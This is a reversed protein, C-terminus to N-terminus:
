KKKDENSKFDFNKLADFANTNLNSNNPSKSSKDRFSKSDKNNPKNYDRRDKSNRQEKNYESRSTIGKEGGMKKSVINGSERIVEDLTSLEARGAFENVGNLGMYRTEINKLVSKSLEFERYSRIDKVDKVKTKYNDIIYKKFVDVYKGIDEITESNNHFFAYKTKIDETLLKVVRIKCKGLGYPKGKGINFCGETDGQKLSYILLGIEEDSLNEFRIKGAFITKENHCTIRSSIKDQKDETPLSLHMAETDISEKMWYFKRGRIEYNSTNYSELSNDKRQKLYGKYWSPKPEGLVMKYEQTKETNSNKCVADMFSLKTRFDKWGFINDVFDIGSYNKHSVPIGDHVSGNAPLRLYPTFGFILRDNDKIYFMPKVQGDKPLAYYEYASNNLKNTYELDQKYLEAQEKSVIIGACNKDEEYILYHHSKGDIYKSNSLFGKFSGDIDVQPRNGDTNYRIEKFYPKYNGNRKYRLAKKNKFDEKTVDKMYLYNINNIDKKILELEHISTYSYVKGPQNGARTNKNELKIAPTIIYEDGRKRIYGAEVRELVTFKFKEKTYQNIGVKNSYWKKIETDKSAFTRYFYRKNTIDCKNTNSNIVSAFSFISANYRTLGRITNGSIVYQGLPNRFLEGNGDSIHLPTVVEIEYQISGTKLNDYYRDHKSIDKEDSSRDLIFDELGIFNYPAKSKYVPEENRGM